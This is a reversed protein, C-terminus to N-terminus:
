LQLYSVNSVIYTNVTCNGHSYATMRDRFAPDNNAPKAFVTLILGKKIPTNNTYSLRIESIKLHLAYILKPKKGSKRNIWLIVRLCM